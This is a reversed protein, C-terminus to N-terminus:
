LCVNLSSPESLCVLLCWLVDSLFNLVYLASTESRSQTKARLVFSLIVISEALAFHLM